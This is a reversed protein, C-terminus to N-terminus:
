QCEKLDDALRMAAKICARHYKNLAKVQCKIKNQTREVGPMIEIVREILPVEHPYDKKLEAM